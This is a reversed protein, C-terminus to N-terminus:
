RAEPQERSLLWNEATRVDFFIRLTAKPDAVPDIKRLKAFAAATSVVFAWRGLSCRPDSQMGKALEQLEQDSFDLSAKSFDIIGNYAPKWAPDSWVSQIHGGLAALAVGGELTIAVYGLETHIKYSAKM